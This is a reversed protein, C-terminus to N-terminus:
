VDSSHQETKCCSRSKCLSLKRNERQGKRQRRVDTCHQWRVYYQTIWYSIIQLIGHLEPMSNELFIQLSIPTGTKKTEVRYFMM